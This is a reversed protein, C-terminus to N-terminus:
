TLGSYDQTYDPGVGTGHFIQEKVFTDKLKGEKVVMLPTILRKNWLNGLQVAYSAFSGSMWGGTGHKGGLTKAVKLLGHEAKAEKRAGIKSLYNKKWISVYQNALPYVGHSTVPIGGMATIGSDIFQSFATSKKKATIFRASNKKEYVPKIANSYQIPILPM